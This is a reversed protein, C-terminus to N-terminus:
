KLNQITLKRRTEEDPSLVLGEDVMLEHLAM